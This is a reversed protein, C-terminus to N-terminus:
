AAASVDGAIEMARKAILERVSAPVQRHAKARPMEMEVLAPTAGYLREHEEWNDFAMRDVNDIFTEAPAGDALILAHDALEVHYYVFSSPVNTERLITTGNVLAGAQVLVGEVLLAHDPSILLDRVPVNAGLAGATVRIPSARLKDAFTMSITSQGIWRIPAEGGDHTLVVDGIALTEVAREGQPTAILTCSM